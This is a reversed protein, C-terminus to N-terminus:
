GAAQERILVEDLFGELLENFIRHQEMMAVHGARTIVYARGDPLAERMARASTKPTLADRDGVVVLAPVTISGLARALDLEMLGRLMQTWVEVRAGASIRTLYDIQAASADPGFNTTRAILFALDRGWRDMVHQIRAARRPDFLVRDTFPRLRRELSAGLTGLLERLVDSAATDALVVGRVRDKFEEPFQDAFSLIGMGGMSHGVLVVPGSGVSRDLVVRLDKGLAELGYDGGPPNESRGHARHDFLVCRYRASLPRWQYYWTTMDLTIGHSFVIAPADRPGAARVALHTGDFSPVPGLDEQPLTGFPEEWEPDPRERHRRVSTRGALVAGAVGAAVALAGVSAKRATSM